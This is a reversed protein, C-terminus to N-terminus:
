KREKQQHKKCLSYKCLMSTLNDQRSVKVCVSVWGEEVTNRKSSWARFYTRNQLRSFIMQHIERIHPIFIEIAILSIWELSEDAQTTISCNRIM